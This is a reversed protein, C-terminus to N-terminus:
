VGAFTRASPALTSLGQNIATWDKRFLSLARLKPLSVLIGRM